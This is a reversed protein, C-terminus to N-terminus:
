ARQDRAARSDERPGQGWRPRATADRRHRDEVVKV